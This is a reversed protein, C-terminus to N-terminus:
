SIFGLYIGAYYSFSNVNPNEDDWGDHNLDERSNWWNHIDDELTYDNCENGAAIFEDFEAALISYCEEKSKM